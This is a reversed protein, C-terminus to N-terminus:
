RPFTEEILIKLLDDLEHFIAGKFLDFRQRSGSAIVSDVDLWSLLLSAMEQDKRRTCSFERLIDSTSLKQPSFGNEMLLQLPPVNQLKM